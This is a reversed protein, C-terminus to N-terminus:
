EAGLPIEHFEAPVSIAGHACEFAAEIFPFWEKRGEDHHGNRIAAIQMAFATPHLLCLRRHGQRQLLHLADDIRRFFVIRLKEAQQAAFREQMRIDHRQNLVIRLRIKLQECISRKQVVINACTKGLQAIDRREDTDFAHLRFRPQTAATVVHEGLRNCSQFGGHLRFQECAHRGADVAVVIVFEDARLIQVKEHLFAGM